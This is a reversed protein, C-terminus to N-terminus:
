IYFYENISPSLTRQTDIEKKFEKFEKRLSNEYTDILKNRNNLINYLSGQRKYFLDFDKPYLNKYEILAFLHNIKLKNNQNSENNFLYEKYLIFENYINTLLRMDKTYFSILNLLITM